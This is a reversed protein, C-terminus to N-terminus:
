LLVEEGCKDCRGIYATAVGGKNEQVEFSAQGTEECHPCEFDAVVVGRIPSGHDNLKGQVSILRSAKKM